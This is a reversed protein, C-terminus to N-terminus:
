GASVIREYVLRTLESSYSRANVRATGTRMAHIALRRAGLREDPSFENVGFAGLPMHICDVPVSYSSPLRESYVPFASSKERSRRLGTRSVRRRSTAKRVFTGIDANLFWRLGNSPELSDEAEWRRRPFAAFELWGVNLTAFRGGATEPYDSISWFKGETETANPILQLVVQALEDVVVEWVPRGDPLVELGRRKTLLTPTPGPKRQAAAVFQAICYDPQGTAWHQQVEVPVVPDLVSPERHGFNFARNKLPGLARHRRITERELVNLDGEPVELFDIAVIDPWPAHHKSGHRHTAYRHVVDTTQGVYRDGDAFYLVYIGRRCGQFLAAVTSSDELAWRKFAFGSRPM